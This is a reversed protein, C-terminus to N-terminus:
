LRAQNTGTGIPGFTLVVTAAPRAFSVRSLILCACMTLGAIEASPSAIVAIITLAISLCGAFAKATARHRRANKLSVYRTHSPHLLLSAPTRSRQRTKPANKMFLIMTPKEM